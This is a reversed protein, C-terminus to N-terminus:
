KSVLEQWLGNNIGFERNNMRITFDFMSDKDVDKDIKIKPIDKTKSQLESEKIKLNTWSNDISQLLKLNILNSDQVMGLKGLLDYPTYILSLYYKIVGAEVRLEKLKIVLGILYNCQAIYSNLQTRFNLINAKIVNDKVWELGKRRIETNLLYFLNEERLYFNDKGDKSLGRICDTKNDFSYTYDTDFKQYYELADAKSIPKEFFYKIYKLVESIGKEIENRKKEREQNEIQKELLRRQSRDTRLIVIVTAFAFLPGLVGGIYSGFNGWDEPFYSLGTNFNWFYFTYPVLILIGFVTLLGYNKRM